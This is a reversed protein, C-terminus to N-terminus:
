NNRQESIINSYITKTTGDTYTITAYGRCYWTETGVNSKIWNYITRAHSDDMGRYYIESNTTEVVLDTENALDINKTALTGTHVSSFNESNELKFISQFVLFGEQVENTSYINITDNIAIEENQDVYVPTYTMDTVCRKYDSSDYSVINEHQDIWYAFKKGNPPEKATIKYYSEDTDDPHFEVFGDKVTVLRNGIPLYGVADSVVISSVKVELTNINNTLNINEIINGNLLINGSPSLSYSHNSTFTKGDNELIHKEVLKDIVESASINVNEMQLALVEMTVNEKLTALETQEQAEAARNLIGNQGTLM